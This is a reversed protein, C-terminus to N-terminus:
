ALAVTAVSVVHRVLDEDHSGAGNSLPVDSAHEGGPSATHTDAFGMVFRPFLHGAAVIKDGNVEVEVSGKIFMPVGSDDGDRRRLVNGDSPSERFTADSDQDLLRKGNVLGAHFRQNLVHIGSAQGGGDSVDIPSVRRRLGHMFSKPTPSEASREIEYRYGALGERDKSRGVAVDIVCLVFGPTSRNLIPRRMDEVKATPQDAGNLTEGNIGITETEVTHFHFVGHMHERTVTVLPLHQGNVGHIVMLSGVFGKQRDVAFPARDPEVDLTVAPMVHGFREALPVFLREVNSLVVIPERSLLM